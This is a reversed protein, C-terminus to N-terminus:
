ALSPSESTAVDVRGLLHALQLRDQPALGVFRLAEFEGQRWVPSACLWLRPLPETPHGIEIAYCARDLDPGNVRRVLVGTMSIEWAEGLIPSGDIYQNCFLRVPKRRATRRESRSVEHRAPVQILNRQM